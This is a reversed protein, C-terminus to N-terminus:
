RKAFQSCCPNPMNMNNCEGAKSSTVNCFAWTTVDTFGDLKRSIENVQTAVVSFDADGLIPTDRPNLIVHHLLNKKEKVASVILKCIGTIHSIVQM